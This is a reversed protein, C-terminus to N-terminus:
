TWSYEVVPCASGSKLRHAPSERPPSPIGPVREGDGLDGSPEPRVGPAPQRHGLGGTPEPLVPGVGQGLRRASRGQRDEGGLEPAQDHEQQDRGGNHGERHALRGLRDRDEDDDDQVRDDPEQRFPPRLLRQRCELLLGDGHGLHDPAPCPALDGRGLQHGPVDDDERGPRPHGGVAPHGLGRSQQDLLRRQRAFGEGHGLAGVRDGVGDRREAVAGVHGEHARRDGVAAAPQDDRGGARPGLHALDAGQDVLGAGPVSGQLPLEGLEAMGQDHDHQGEAGHDDDGAEQPAVGEQGHQLDADRQGDGRDGLAQGGHRRHRQRHAHLAHGPHARQHAPEGGDLREARGRDDAGVLGPGQGPVLHGHAGEDQLPLAEFDGARSIGRFPLEVPVPPGDIRPGIAVQGQGQPDTRQAVVGGDLEAVALVGDEAVRGFPGQDDRRGLRPQIPGGQIAVVRPDALDGEVAIDFRM